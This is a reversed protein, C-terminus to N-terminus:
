KQAEEQLVLATPFLGSRFSNTARQFSNNNEDQEAGMFDPLAPSIGYLHKPEPLGHQFIQASVPVPAYAVVHVRLVFPRVAASYQGLCNRKSFGEHTHNPKPVAFQSGFFLPLCANIEVFFGKIGATGPKSNPESPAIDAKIYSRLALRAPSPKAANTGGQNAGGKLTPLVELSSSVQQKIMHEYHKSVDSRQTSLDLEGDRLLVLTNHALQTAVEQAATKLMGKFAWLRAVELAGACLLSLLILSVIGEVLAQGSQNQKM